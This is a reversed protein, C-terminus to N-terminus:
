LVVGGSIDAGSTTSMILDFKARTEGEERDLLSQYHSPLQNEPSSEQTQDSNPKELPPDELENQKCSSCTM